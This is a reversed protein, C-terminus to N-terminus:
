SARSNKVMESSFLKLFLSISSSSLNYTPANYRKYFIYLPFDLSKVNWTMASNVRTM